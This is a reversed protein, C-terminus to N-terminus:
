ARAWPIEQRPLPKTGSPAVTQQQIAAALQTPHTLQLHHGAGTITTVHATPHGALLARGATDLPDDAGVIVHVQGRYRRLADRLAARRRKDGAERLLGAVYVAVRGHRLDASSSALELAYAPDGTLLKALTEPRARRLYWRTLPTWRTAAAPRPQLFFPSILTLQQVRDPHATAAELAAAAGISHGVLHQAGTDTVLATLWSTWDRRDGASMGLGPLDVARANGLTSVAAAWTDANVPLGPLVVTPATADGLEFTRVGAPRTFRRASVAANAPVNGFRHAALHDAWRLLSTTTDPPVLRHRQAVEVAPGTPYRDNSLFALTEPDARTLWRPLRRLLPLPTRIWPVRVQYHRGVLALLDPLPPTDDDLVWYAARETGPDLPLLTMFRALHDVPVV